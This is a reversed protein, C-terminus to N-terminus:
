ARMWAVTDALGRELDIEASWGLGHLRSLEAASHRVDGARGPGHEPAPADGSNGAARWVEAWLELITTTHGSAVNMLLLPDDDQRPQGQQLAEAAALNARVVDRVHVFDRTQGGDGFIQPAVGRLAHDAFVSIVGSYPSRPDQRPGYVNFYRLAGCHLGSSATAERMLLESELKHEAYPSQPAPPMTERKPLRPADGYIASSSSFVMAQVGTAQAANLLAETTGFNARRAEDPFEVSYPVSPRAAFHFIREVGICAREADEPVSADGLLFEVGDAINEQKGTALDDLVRVTRGSALLADVLTSGIFGAGGAVLDLGSM